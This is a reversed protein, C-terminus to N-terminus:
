QCGFSGRFPGQSASNQPGKTLFPGGPCPGFQYKKLYIELCCVFLVAQNSTFVVNPELSIVIEIEQPCIKLTQLQMITFIYFTYQFNLISLNTHFQLSLSMIYDHVILANKIVIWAYVRECSAYVCMCMDRGLCQYTKFHACKHRLHAQKHM